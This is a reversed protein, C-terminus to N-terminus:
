RRAYNTEEKLIVNTYVIDTAKLLSEQLLLAFGPIQYVFTIFLIFM